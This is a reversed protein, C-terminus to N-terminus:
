YPRQVDARTWALAGTPCHRVCEGAKEGLATVLSDNFPVGVVTGYGRGIFALGTGEKVSAAIRVCIGCKICKGPEFVIEPHTTNMSFELRGERTIHSHDVEYDGAADRLRCDKARRCDCHLCRRSETVAADSSISSDTTVAPSIRGAPAAGKILEALEEEHLRGLRSNFLGPEGVVSEGSVLQDIACAMLRGHAMARVAMRGPHVAEGGAFVKPDSSRMTAGDVKFGRDDSALGWVALSDTAFKGPALVVADFTAKLRELGVGPEVLTKMRFEVGLERIVAIDRELVAFPLIANSTRYRLQGGAEEHDDFITCAHGALALYYASALGAPGAGIIAVRKGSSKGCLLAPGAGSQADVYREMLCISIPADHRGRRCAKECPAICVHGVVGPMAIAARATALAGTNDGAVIQRLMLPIDMRAPCTVRCPAECDGAHEGLMLELVHKRHSRVAESNTEVVMGEMAPASCAPLLRGSGSEKVACIMCSTFPESGQLHCFTPIRIGLRIAAELLTAGENVEVSRGDMTLRPM